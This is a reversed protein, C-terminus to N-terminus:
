VEEKKYPIHLKRLIAEERKQCTFILVQKKNMALWKLTNELRVDDYYAFTDDLIVPLEERGLVDVAAMRLAFYIQEITGRSVQSVPIKRGESILSMKLQDEVVLRNYKGGTIERIISSVQANLEEGMKSELKRSLEELKNAAFQVSACEKEIGKVSDDLEDLEAIQEQLNSYEIERDKLEEKTHALEWKLKEISAKEEEPTIEELLKEPETKERKKGVKMRNWVYIGCSLFLIIAILYNWPQHLLFMPLIIILAFVLLELPHIRWKEPRIEDIVGKNETEREAKEREQEQRVTIEEELCRQEERLKHIDRWIYSAEQEKHERQRQKKQLVAKLQRELEKRREKLQDFAGTLNMDGGGGAYYNTAFDRLEDALTRDTEIKLQGISVTNEYSAANVGGLLIELDGNEVSLEEGDDECILQVKKSVKDFDRRICFHKWGSEFRMSGSYYNPNEWPEYRTFTDNSSARGRKREMGFLMGKIFTHITSKGSENEGYFLQIGDSLRIKKETFKGFNKIVLEAIQM